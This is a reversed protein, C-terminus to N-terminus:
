RGPRPGCAQVAGSDVQFVSNESEANSTQEKAGKRKGPVLEVGLVAPGLHATVEVTLQSPRANGAVGWEHHRKLDLAAVPHDLLALRALAGVLRARACKAGVALERGPLLAARRRRRHLILRAATGLPRVHCINYEHIAGPIQASM